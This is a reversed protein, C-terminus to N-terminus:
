QVIIKKTMVGEPTEVRAFFIGPQLTISFKEQTENMMGDFVSMVDNGLEDFIHLHLVSQFSFSLSLEVMGFSPNPTIILNETLVNDINVSNKVGPFYLEAPFTFFTDIKSNYCHIKITAGFRTDISFPSASSSASFGFCQSSLPSIVKTTFALSDALTHMIFRPTSDILIISSDMRLSDYSNNYITFGCPYVIGPITYKNLTKDFIFNFSFYMGSTASPYIKVTSDFYSTSSIFLSAHRPGCYDCSLHPVSGYEIVVTDKRNLYEIRPHLHVTESFEEFIVNYKNTSPINPYYSFKLTCYTVNGQGDKCYDYGWISDPSSFIISDAGVPVLVTVFKDHQAYIISAFFYFGVGLFNKFISM